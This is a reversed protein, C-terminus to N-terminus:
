ARPGRPGGRGGNESLKAWARAFQQASWNCPSLPAHPPLPRVRAHSCVLLAKIRRLWSKRHRPDLELAETADAVARSPDGAVGRDGCAAVDISHTCAHTRAHTRTHMQTHKCTHAHAYTHTYTRTLKHTQPPAHTRTHAHTHTPTHTYTHTHTHTRCACREIWTAARNALLTARAGRADDSVGAAAASAHALGRSYEHAARAFAGSTYRHGDPFAYTPRTVPLFIRALRGARAPACADCRRAPSPLHPSCARRTVACRASRLACSTACVRRCGTAASTRLGRWRHRCRRLRGRPGRARVMTPLPPRRPRTGRSRRRRTRASSTSSSRPTSTRSCARATPPSCSSRPMRGRDRAGRPTGADDCAM